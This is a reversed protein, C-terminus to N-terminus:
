RRRQESLEDVKTEVDDVDRFLDIAIEQLARGAKLAARLESVDLDSWFRKRELPM